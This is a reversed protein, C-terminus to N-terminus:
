KAPESELFAFLDAIEERTLLDLLKDPMVSILSAFQQDIESKKLTVRTGDSQLVSITDGQPAALGNVQQGKKTIFTTSRYQDSIVKSPYYVAELIDARKFRKSVDTLDPGVGEGEKGYKHCKLCQAKEFAVRGKAVDGKRGEKQLFALLDDYRYKSDTPQDGAVNPPPPEKPFSQVFWKTWSGLEEKWDGQRAGFQKDNSWHRLLEVARWRNGADLRSAAVLVARYPAAEDTKPKTTVKKLAQIVDFLVQRNPSELGRLIYRYNEATPFRALAGAVLDRQTPDADAIKRLAAQSRTADTRGLAAVLGGKLSNVQPSPAAKAAKEYSALLAETSPLQKETANRILVVAALPLKDAMKLVRTRDEATFVPGLDKLINELFPTFSFGGTWTKTADYWALLEDKQKATWGDHLLRLCYFYHIQQQRDDKSKLLAGLLKEHVPEDLVKERRFYTLLIALERNVRADKHPFMELCDLAFGRVTGPRKDTHVLAMQMTRLHDLVEQVDDGPATEHLRTFIQEAYPNAKGAKCLAIIGERVLGRDESRFLRDAWQKTDIHELVLRAATRVFRDDDILVRALVDVPPEIRARILAECARRRVLADGDKLAKVLTDKGEKYAKVGLLWVAHARAEASKDGALALLVKVDLRTPALNQCVTLARIRHRVSQSGDLATEVAKEALDRIHERAEANRARSWAALPQPPAVTPTFDGRGQPSPKGEHYVIRCVGGQSGRGGMTFYISGDPAVALDTVNMPSGTCFKELKGKYTAGDQKLHVAYIIGLSWDAMFSAGRYKEPFAVHDYFEVGVPSGRGTELLPPLSDLYYDPTNAAGTRWVFDAGPPCHCVRVARYWPLGEDWEMDSDFTFLEGSPSFAADFHNRFGAAVLSLNKGEHDMRWITGGPALINAAHGNADNLRPLLVDETTGPKGQDPGPTGKPWRTLPSNDALKEPSAWAHNGIVVYLWGDPSHLIAHPGHEGMGGHFRHLLTVEDIKDMKKTDRCRYLGTGKPGDGVLLLADDVWCMGQSNKVQTCYDVVKQYVGDKDPDTCLLTPGGEQSLLLRGKADFTMNVLSFPGRDDPRKVAQEVRFGEPVTFRRKPDAGGGSALNRWPGVEGYAGLVKVAAWGKEDFDIEQWGKAATKSAKWTGDSNVAQKRQGSPTYNLRVLLGAPGGDNHAEVALVNKGSRVLKRVDFRYIQEWRDGSGVRTGNLWVTFSNDATIELEAASFRPTDRDITFNRRFYRTAIPAESLPDGEDFWIWQVGRLQQARAPNGGLHWWLAVAGVTLLSLTLFWGRRM